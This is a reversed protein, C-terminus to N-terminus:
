VPNVVAGAGETWNTASVTGITLATGTVTIGITYNKGAELSTFTGATMTATYTKSDMAFTITVAGSLGQVPVMLLTATTNTAGSAISSISTNLTVAGTATSTYPYGDTDTMDLTGTSILNSNTLTISTINCAGPYSAARTISFTIKAYAQPLSLTLPTTKNNGTTKAYWLANADNTGPTGSTMPIATATGNDAKYPYYVGINATHDTLYIQNNASEPKWTGSCTYPINSKTTSYNSSSLRFVGLNGSNLTSRTMVGSLSASAFTLPVGDEEVSPVERSTCAIFLLITFLFGTIFSRRLYCAKAPSYTITRKMTRM